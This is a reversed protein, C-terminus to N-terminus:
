EDILFRNTASKKSYNFVSHNSRQRFYSSEPAIRQGLFDASNKFFENGRTPFNIQNAARHAVDEQPFFFNGVPIKGGVGRRFFNLTKKFFTKIVILVARDFNGM